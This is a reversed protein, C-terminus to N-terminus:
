KGFDSILCLLGYAEVETYTYKTMSDYYIQLKLENEVAYTHGDSCNQANTPCPQATKTSPWISHSVTLRYELEECLPLCTCNLEAMPAMEVRGVCRLTEPSTDCVRVKEDPNGTPPPPKTGPPANQGPPGTQGSPDAIQGATVTQNAPGPPPPAATSNPANETSQPGSKPPPPYSFSWCGCEKVIQRQLCTNICGNLTYNFGGYYYNEPTSAAVREDEKMCESYPRGKGINEALSLAIATATGVPAFVGDIEPFPMKMPRTIGVKVGVAFTTPLYESKNVHLQVTFGYLPGPRITQYGGELNISYCIGYWPNYWAVWKQSSNENVCDEMNYECDRILDDQTQWSMNYNNFHENQGLMGIERFAKKELRLMSMMPKMSPMPRQTSSELATNRAEGTMTANM